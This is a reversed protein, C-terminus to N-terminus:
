PAFQAKERRRRYSNRMVPAQGGSAQSDTSHNAHSSIGSPPIYYVFFLIASFMDVVSGGDAVFASALRGIVPIVHADHTRRTSFAIPFTGPTSLTATLRAVSRALM